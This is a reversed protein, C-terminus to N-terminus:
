VRFGIGYVRFHMGKLAEKQLEAGSGEEEEMGGDEPLEQAESQKPEPKTVNGHGGGHLMENTLKEFQIVTKRSQQLEAEQSAKVLDEYEKQLHVPITLALTLGEGTNPAVM